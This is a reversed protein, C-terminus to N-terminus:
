SMGSNNKVIKKIDISNNKKLIRVGLARLCNITNNIDESELIGKISSVGMCQSAIMLARHSISKDSEVHITKNFKKIKSNLYVSFRKNM